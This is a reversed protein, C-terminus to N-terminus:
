AAKAGAMLLGITNVDAEESNFEGVIKGAYMVLIRDSLRLVEDLDESTLLIAAGKQKQELLKQHVYETAGIDLGRTPQAAIIIKPNRSLTRALLIKQINGGSLTRVKDTPAAKIQFDKILKEANFLIDKHKIQGTTTFSSLQELVLNEAVTLDGVVAKMREEPIRGIGLAVANQPTLQVEQNNRLLQGSSAQLMGTLVHVLESQGNGAVAAVGVVEGAHLNFSIDSLQELGRKAKLSINKLSLLVQTNPSPESTQQRSVLAADRGVMLKALEEKTTDKANLTGVVVGRRLVVVRQSISLAENLKHTIIIVALGQNQLQRLTTFLSEVDQPTLVATPEDLILLKCDRYLAKLIEVRQQEGVSLSSVLANAKITLGYRKATTEVQTQLAKQSLVSGGERGLVVNETVTLSPVLSFHQSVFGIGKDIADAPSRLRVAQANIFIDGGDPQYMGYLMKTLTTKGAGNEGLLALVEGAYLSVDVNENAVLSGFRKTLGRLEIFPQLTNKNTMRLTRDNLKVGNYSTQAYRQPLGKHNGEVTDNTFLQKQFTITL